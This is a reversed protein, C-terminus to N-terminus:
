SDFINRVTMGSILCSDGISYRTKYYLLLNNMKKRYYHRSSKSCYRVMLSHASTYRSLQAAFLSCYNWIFVTCHACVIFVPCLGTSMHFPFQQPPDQFQWSTAPLHRSALTRCGSQVQFSPNVTRAQITLITSNHAFIKWIIRM